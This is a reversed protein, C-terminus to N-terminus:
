ANEWSEFTNILIDNGDELADSIYDGMDDSPVHDPVSVSDHYVEWYRGLPGADMEYATLTRM